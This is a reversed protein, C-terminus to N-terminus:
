KFQEELTALRKRMLEIIENSLQSSTTFLRSYAIGKQPIYGLLVGSCNRLDDTLYDRLEKIEDYNIVLKPLNDEKM